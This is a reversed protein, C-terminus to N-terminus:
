KSQQEKINERLTQLNKIKQAFCPIHNSIYSLNAPQILAFELEFKQQPLLTLEVYCYHKWAIREQTDCINWQEPVWTRLFTQIYGRKSKRHKKLTTAREEKNITLVPEIGYDLGHMDQQYFNLQRNNTSKRFEILAPNVLFSSVIKSYTDESDVIDASVQKPLGFNPPSAYLGSLINVKKSTKYNNTILLKYDM